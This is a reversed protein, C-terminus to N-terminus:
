QHHAIKIEPHFQKRIKYSRIILYKQQDPSWCLCLYNGNQVFEAKRSGTKRVEPSKCICKWCGMPCNLM